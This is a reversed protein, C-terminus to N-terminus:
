VDSAPPRVTAAATRDSVSPSRSTLSRWNGGVILQAPDARGGGASAQFFNPQMEAGASSPAGATFRTPSTLPAATLKAGGPPWSSFVKSRTRGFASSM